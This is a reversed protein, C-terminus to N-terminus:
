PQPPPAPQNPPPQQPREGVVSTAAPGPAATVTDAAAPGAPATEAGTQAVGGAAPAARPPDLSVGYPLRYDAPDEARRCASLALIASLVLACASRPIQM